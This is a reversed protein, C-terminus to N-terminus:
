LRAPSYDLERVFATIESREMGIDRLTHDDLSDLAVRTARRMQWALYRFWLSAVARSAQKAARGLPRMLTELGEALAPRYPTAIVYSGSLTLPQPGTLATASSM